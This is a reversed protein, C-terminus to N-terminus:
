PTDIVAINYQRVQLTWDSDVAIVPVGAFPLYLALNTVYLRKRDPSFAPSAPFLLGEISGDGAIGDFDGKKAIVKGNPDVVVIEDGQNAAVWLNDSADVAIGDPANIGTTFTAGTGASGDANVPIKVISHYATNAVFLATGENNFEIGNAGFPPILIEGANADPLLLDNQSANTPAYWATPHKGNADTRWIAGQFSDSIYVNGSKDFAIANLGPSKGAIISSAQFFLSAREHKPDVRWVAGLGLDAVLVSTPSQYALGILHPSSGVVPFHKVPSGNPTFVFFEGYGGLAGDSNFGFSATYVTGDPGVAVGEVDSACATAGNPCSAGSGSPSFAPITAFSHVSGRDWARAPPNALAILVAAAGAGILSNRRM